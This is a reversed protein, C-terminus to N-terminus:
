CTSLSRCSTSARRACSTEGSRRGRDDKTAQVKDADANVKMSRFKYCYFEKDNLGNRKQRFFIPGPMTIKTIITVIILIPIFLTCLFCLSFVIDFTRKM